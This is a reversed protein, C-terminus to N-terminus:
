HFHTELNSSKQPSHQKGPTQSSTAAAKNSRSVCLVDPLSRSRCEPHKCTRCFDLLKMGWKMKSIRPTKSCGKPCYTGLHLSSLAPSIPSCSILTCIEGPVNEATRHWTKNAHSLILSLHAEKNWPGAM